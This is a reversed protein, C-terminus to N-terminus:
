ERTFSLMGTGGVASIISTVPTCTNNSDTNVLLTKKVSEVDTADGTIIELQSSLIDQTIGPQPLLLATLKSPTRALARAHYGNLLTYALCANTCGGTAGFFAVTTM